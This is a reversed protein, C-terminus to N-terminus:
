QASRQLQSPNIKPQCPWEYVLPCGPGTSFRSSFLQLDMKGNKSSPMGRPSEVSLPVETCPNWM